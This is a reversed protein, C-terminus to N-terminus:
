RKAMGMELIIIYFDLETSRSGFRLVDFNQNRVFVAVFVVFLVLLLSSNRKNWPRYHENIGLM